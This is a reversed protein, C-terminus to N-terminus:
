IANWWILPGMGLPDLPAFEIESPPLADYTFPGTVADLDHTGIAVLKPERCINQHLKAQLELFSDYGRNGLTM